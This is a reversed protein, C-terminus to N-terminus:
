SRTAREKEYGSTRKTHKSKDAQSGSPPKKLAEKVTPVSQRTKPFSSVMNPSTITRELDTVGPSVFFNEASGKVENYSSRSAAM